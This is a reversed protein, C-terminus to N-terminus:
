GCVQGALPRGFRSFISCIKFNVTNGSTRCQSRNSIKFIDTNEFAKHLPAGQALSTCPRVILLVALKLFDGVCSTVILILVKMVSFVQGKLLSIGGAMWIENLASM